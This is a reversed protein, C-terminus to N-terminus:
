NNSQSYRKLVRMARLTIWKSPQGKKEIDVWMKGNLTNELRWRGQHDQKSLIFRIANAMRADRGYGLDVLVATNELVDSWYSLPFGFKFWTSSVRETYPYDALAPDRSLLFEVGSIIARQLSQSRLNPPIACLAKLAKVAGWGCPQGLNIGCAFGPGATGAKYYRVEGQGTIARVQWDLAAQLRPDASYGLSLLAYLLNGNLCHVAGSPTPPQNLSFPGNAVLSHSLLYECGLQVRREMPDAGLEGLIIIQWVTGQYKPSYASGAKVWYGEPNQAALIVPVPGTTMVDQRAQRLEPDDESRDLLDRLAFYRVAPNAPDPELLWSLPDGHLMDMQM